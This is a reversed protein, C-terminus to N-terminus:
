PSTKMSTDTSEGKIGEIKLFLDETGGTVQDLEGETLESNPNKVAAGSTAKKPEKSKPTAM